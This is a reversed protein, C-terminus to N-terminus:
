VDSTVGETVYYQAQANWLEYYKGSEDSLLADHSGAGEHFVVIEDCFKCSSLRHSIYIATKDGAIADFKEYIEAEAIPDLAATPEDLIIFPADKYLARAIAIKQAEGGSLDVGKKNWNKYLYTDIGDSMAALRDSFGAKELCDTVRDKDLASGSAINESLKMALLNFDQFVVSFIDMYERYDYKRIDIGNLLIEGYTPDYLRCLLKIFTTKGSGNMGVVALREGVKFKMNVNKLVYNESGPYKFSVNRFEIEYNRDSRKEVTLTGKYMDNPIDLFDFTLKLFPANNRMDILANVLESIGGSVKTISAVYQTVSGLGFAGGLAKLCVFLYIIGVLLPTAAASAAMYLGGAGRAYKAFVGNSGFTGDKDINYRECIRDQRYTRIDLALKDNYGLFGFFGFLRNGFNHMKSLKAWQNGIKAAFIPSVATLALMVTMIGIATLPSSLFASGPVTATFLTVTLALGGLITFISSLLTAFSLWTKYMGWGSGYLNQMVTSHLEATKPDDIRSYDMDLFKDALIHEVKIWMGASQSNNWRKLLINGISIVAAASLSILVLMKLRDADRSATLEGIILASLYIGVYPTIADWIIKAIQSAFLSPYKRRYIDMARYNVCAIQAFSMKGDTKTKNTLRTLRTLRM